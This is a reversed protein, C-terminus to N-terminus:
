PRSVTLYINRAKAAGSHKTIVLWYTGALYSQNGTSEPRKAVEHPGCSLGLRTQTCTSTSDTAGAQKDAHCATGWNAPTSDSCVRINMDPNTSTGEWDLTVSLTTTAGLVFKFYMCPNQVATPTLVTDLVTNVGVTDHRVNHTTDAAIEPCQKASDAATTIIMKYNKGSAPLLASIDPATGFSTDSAWVNGTQKVSQVSKVTGVVGAVYTASDSTITAPGSDSFPVLVKMSDATRILVTSLHGSALSITSGSFKQLATSRFVVTDGGRPALNSITGHFLTPLVTVAATDALGNSAVVVRGMGTTGLGVATVQFTQPTGNPFPVTTDPSVSVVAPDPTTASVTAILPNLQEDRVVVSLARSSGEDVFMVLPQVDLSKPGARLSATPDGRCALAALLVGALIERTHLRKM